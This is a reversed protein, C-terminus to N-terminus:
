RAREKVWRVVLRAPAENVLRAHTLSMLVNDKVLRYHSVGGQEVPLYRVRTPVNVIPSGNWFMRVAIEVDYEMRRSRPRAALAAAVPYIRFGCMPDAIALGGTELTTWLKTVLRGIIRSRPASEDFLPQGTILAEPHSRAAELFRPIDALDHQGDADVQLAHSFGLDNARRLGDHVAAGKGGNQGRRVLLALGERALQRAVKRGPPASGDDVIIV